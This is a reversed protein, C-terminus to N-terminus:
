LIPVLYIHLLLFSYYYNKYVMQNRYNSDNTVKDEVRELDDENDIPLLSDFEAYNLIETNHNEIETVSKNELKQLILQM